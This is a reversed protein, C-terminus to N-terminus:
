QLIWVTMSTWDVQGSGNPTLINWTWIEGAQGSGNSTLEQSSIPETSNITSVDDLDIESSIDTNLIFDAIERQPNKQIPLVFNMSSTNVPFTTSWIQVVKSQIKLQKTDINEGIVFLSQKLLDLLQTVVFIHPNLIWQRILSAEDQKFTDVEVNFSIEKQKPDFKQFVITFNPMDSQELKLDIYYMLKKFFGVDFSSNKDYYTYYKDFDAVLKCNEDIEFPNLYCTNLYTKIDKEGRTDLAQIKKQVEEPTIALLNALWKIFTDLYSFVKIAASFKVVELSMLSNKISIVEQDAPFITLLDKPFFGYQTIDKKLSDLKIYNSLMDGAIGNLGNQFIDKKQIYSLRNSNLVASVNNSAPVWLFSTSSMLSYDNLNTYQSWLMQFDKAYTIYTQYTTDVKAQSVVDLYSKWLFAAGSILSACAIVIISISVIKRYNFAWKALGMSGIGSAGLSQSSKKSEERTVEEIAINSIDIAPWEPNEKMAANADTLLSTTQDSAQVEPVSFSSADNDLHDKLTVAVSEPAQNTILLNDFNIGGTAPTEPSATNTPNKDDM